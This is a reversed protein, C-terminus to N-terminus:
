PVWTIEAGNSLNFTAAPVCFAAANRYWAQYTRIGGSAPVIGQVSLANDGPAPYQSAGAVNTKTGLRIVTGGACRLGDGFATGAGGNQRTTGQFYLCSSNPMQTGLLTIANTGGADAAVSAIASTTASTRLAAGVGPTISNACGEMAGPASPNPPAAGACTCPTGSGDGFCYYVGPDFPGAGACDARILYVMGLNGNATNVIFPPTTNNALNTTDLTAGQNGALWGAATIDGGCGTVDASAPFGNTHAVWAGIFFIGSANVTTGLPIAQFTDTHQGVMPASATALLVADTPNGDDTPDEFVGVNATLGPPLPSGTGTWGWVASVTSVSTMGGISGQRMFWATVRQSGAPNAVVSNANESSGDDFQCSTNPSYPNVTFTGTGGGAAPFTGVQILYESGATAAWNLRSQFNGPAILAQIDDNCALATAGGGPCYPGGTPVGYVAIKTDVATTGCTTLVATGTFGATWVFWVDQDLAIANYFICNTTSQGDPPVATSITAATNDFAHPGAGSIPDPATCQDAGGVLPAPPLNTQAVRNQVKVTTEFDASQALSLPSIAAAVAAIRTLTGLHM